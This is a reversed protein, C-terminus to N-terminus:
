LSPLPTEEKREPVSQNQLSPLPTAEMGDSGHQILNPYLILQTRAIGPLSYLTVLHNSIKLLPTWALATIYTPAMGLPQLSDFLIGFLGNFVLPTSLTFTSPQRPHPMCRAINKAFQNTPSALQPHPPLRPTVQSSTALYSNHPLSTSAEGSNCKCLKLALSSAGWKDEAKATPQPGEHGTTKVWAIVHAPWQTWTCWSQQHQPALSSTSIKKSQQQTQCSM